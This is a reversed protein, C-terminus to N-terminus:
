DDDDVAHPRDGHLFEVVLRRAHELVYLAEAEDEPLQAVINNAQHRLWRQKTESLRGRARKANMSVVKLM